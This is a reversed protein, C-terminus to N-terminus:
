VVTASFTVTVVELGEITGIIVGNNPDAQPVTNGNVALTNNIYVYGDLVDIFIVDDIPTVPDTNTLVITFTVVNGSVVNTYNQTKVVTLTPNLLTATTENSLEDYSFGGKNYNVSAQNKIIAM